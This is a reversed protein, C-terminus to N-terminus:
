EVVVARDGEVVVVGAIEVQALEAEGDQAVRFKLEFVFGVADGQVDGHGKSRM